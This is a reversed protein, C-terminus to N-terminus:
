NSTENGSDTQNEETIEETTEGTAEESVENSNEEILQDLYYYDSYNLKFLDIKQKGDTSLIEMYGSDSDSDPFFVWDKGLCLSNSPQKLTYIKKTDKGDLNMKYIAIGEQEGTTSYVYNFYFIGKDSVNLNYIKSDSLMVDNKGDLDMKHVYNDQTLYYINNGYIISDFIREGNIKRSNKGNRDMIYTVSTDEGDKTEPMNYIIYKDNIAEFGSANENLRTKHHGNLDMYWICEDEGIYYIKGDVVAIKYDYNHFENDNLVEDKQDGNKRVRHIKNDVEDSNKDNEDVNNQSLTVFYIYDGYSNISAIEWTGEILRTQPGTLNKKSVKSIGIYQGNKNPCMYYIYKSDEAMYGFNNINGITNGEKAEIGVTRFIFHKFSNLGNFVMGTALELIILIALIIILIVLIINWKNKM